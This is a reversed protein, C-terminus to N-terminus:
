FAINDHTAPRGVSTTLYTGVMNQGRLAYYLTLDDDGWAEQAILTFLKNTSHDALAEKVGKYGLKSAWDTFRTHAKVWNTVAEGDLTGDHLRIEITKYQGYALVNVWNYRDQSTSWDGFRSGLGNRRSVAYDVDACTWRCKHCYSGNRRGRSAFSLWVDQTARYAYAIAYLSDRKEGRMDLHLHFGCNSDVEWGCEDAVEVIDDIAELGADGSLIASFFEKGTVTCDEKAGWAPHDRLAEYYGDCSETELEVGFCRDSRIRNVCGNDQFPGHEFNAHRTLCSPCFHQGLQEVMSGRVDFTNCGYCNTFDNSSRCVGCVVVGSRTNRTHQTYVLDDCHACVTARRAVCPLCIFDRNSGNRHRDYRGRRVRILDGVQTDHCYDCPHTGCTSVTESTTNSMNEQANRPITISSNLYAELFPFTLRFDHVSGPQFM